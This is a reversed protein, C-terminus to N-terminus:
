RFPKNMDNNGDVVFGNATFAAEITAGTIKGDPNSVTMVRIDQTDVAVEKVPEAKAPAETEVKHSSCATMGFAVFASLAIASLRKMTNRKKNTTKPTLGFVYL